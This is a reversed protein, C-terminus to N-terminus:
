QENQTESSEASRKMDNWSPLKNPSGSIRKPQEVADPVNNSGSQASSQATRDDHYQRPEDSLPPQRVPIVVDRVAQGKKVVLQTPASAGPQDSPISLNVGVVEKAARKLAVLSDMGQQEYAILRDEIRNVVSQDFAPSMPNAASHKAELEDLMANFQRNSQVNDINNGHEQAALEPQGVQESTSPNKLRGWESYVGVLIILSIIAAIIVHLKALGSWLVNESRSGAAWVQYSAWVGYIVAAMMVFQPFPDITEEILAGSIAGFVFGGVIFYLWYARALSPENSRVLPIANGGSEAEETSVATKGQSSFPAACNHCLAAGDPSWTQCRNCISM